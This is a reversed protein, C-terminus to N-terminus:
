LGVKRIATKVASSFAHMIGNIQGKMIASVKKWGVKAEHRSQGEGQVFEIGPADNALFSQRGSGEIRWNGMMAGTRKYPVNIEGNRLAAFFWRRQKATFFTVGYAAKRTVYNQPAPKSVKPLLFKNAAMVGEDAIADPLKSLKAEIEQMGETTVVIIDSMVM